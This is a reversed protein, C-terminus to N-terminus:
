LTHLFDDMERDGEIQINYVVPQPVQDLKAFAVMDATVTDDHYGAEAARLRTAGRRSEVFHRYEGTVPATSTCDKPFLLQKRELLLVLRDSHLVKSDNTNYVAEIKLQPRKEILEQFVLAGGGNTEVSVLLPRYRDLLDLTKEINYTNSKRNQRYEAVLRYPASTVDWMRVCFYDDGGFNPDIGVLYRHSLSPSRWEGNNAWDILEDAFICTGSEILDLEYEENWQAQTYNREERTKEAWNPDAAYVPHASYHILCKATEGHVLVQFPANFGRRIDAAAKLIRGEDKSSSSLIQWFLGTKGKPTSNFIIRGRDGLLAITPAAAQYVGEIGDIVAAEDFLIVSVSPISRAARATVPLLFIRGLGEFAIKKRSESAFSPCRDGLSVAMDRIRGGLESSDDQTKSFIIANFGPETLARKLIWSCVTESVGLQRSKLIITNKNREIADILDVQFPYPDFPIVRGQSRINVLPAFDAWKAPLDPINSPSLGLLRDIEDIEQPELYALLEQLEQQSYIQNMQSM